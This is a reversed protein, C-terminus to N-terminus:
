VCSFFLHTGGATMTLHQVLAIANLVVDGAGVCSKGVGNARASVNVLPRAYLPRGVAAAVGIKCVTDVGSVDGQHERILSLGECLHCLLPVDNTKMDQLCNLIKEFASALEPLM